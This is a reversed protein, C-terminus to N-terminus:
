FKLLCIGTFLIYIPDLKGMGSFERREVELNSNEIMFLLKIVIRIFFTKLNFLLYQIWILDNTSYMTNISQLLHHHRSLIMTMNLSYHIFRKLVDTFKKGRKLNACNKKWYKSCRCSPRSSNIKNPGFKRDPWLIPRYTKKQIRLNRGWSRM